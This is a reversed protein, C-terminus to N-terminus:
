WPKTQSSEKNSNQNAASGSDNSDADSQTSQANQALLDEVKQRQEDSLKGSKGSSSGALADDASGTDTGSASQDGKEAKIKKFIRKTLRNSIRSNRDISERVQPLLLTRMSRAEDFQDDTQQQRTYLKNLDADDNQSTKINEQLSKTAQNYNNVAALNTVAWLAAVVLLAAMVSLAIRTALSARARIPEGSVAVEEIPDVM